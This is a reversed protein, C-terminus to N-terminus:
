NDIYISHFGPPIRVSNPLALETIKHNEMDILSLFYKKKKNYTFTLLYEKNDIIIPQAESNGYRDNMLFINPCTNKFDSLDIKLYGHVEGKQSDVITSYLFTKNLKSLRPFETIYNTNNIFNYLIDNKVIKASYNQKSLIIQSLQTGEFPKFKKNDIFSAFHVNKLVCAYAYYNNKSEYCESFHFIFFNEDFNYWKIKDTDKNLIGFRTVGKKDFYIPLKNDFMRNFDAKLPM